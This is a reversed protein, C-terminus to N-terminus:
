RGPTFIAAARASSESTAGEFSLPKFPDPRGFPEPIIQTSFDELTQFAPESFIAGDLKVARLALLTAVLDQNIPNLTEDIGQTSLIPPSSSGTGSLGWWAVGAVVVALILILKHRMLFIM